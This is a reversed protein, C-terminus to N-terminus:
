LQPSTVSSQKTPKWEEIERSMQLTRPGMYRRAIELLGVGLLVEIVTVGVVEPIHVDDQNSLVELFAFIRNLVEENDPTPESRLLTILYPNLVDGYINHPGPEEGGWWALEKEYQPLLEPITEVLKKSLNAYTIDSM